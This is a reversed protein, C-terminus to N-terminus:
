EFGDGFILDHVITGTVKPTAIAARYQSNMLVSISAGQQNAIV